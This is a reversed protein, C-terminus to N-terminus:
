SGWSQVAPRKSFAQVEDESLRRMKSSHAWRGPELPHRELYTIYGHWGDDERAWMHLLAVETMSPSVTLEVHVPVDRWRAAQDPREGPGEYRLSLVAAHIGADPGTLGRAVWERRDEDWVGYHFPASGKPADPDWRQAYRM